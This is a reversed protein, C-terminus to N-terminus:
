RRLPLSICFKSGRGVDSEVTITGGHAEIMSKVIPLGLGRGRSKTTSLPEFLKRINEPPMGAGTDAVNISASQGKKKTTISLTGGDPMAQCANGFLNILARQM